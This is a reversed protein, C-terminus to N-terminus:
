AQSMKTCTMIPFFRRHDNWGNRGYCIWENPRDEPNFYMDQMHYIDSDRDKLLEKDKSNTLKPCLIYEAENVLEEPLNHLFQVVILTSIGPVEEIERYKTSLSTMVEASLGGKGAFVDGEEMYILPIKRMYGGEPNRITNIRANVIDYIAANVIAGQSMNEALNKSTVSGEMILLENEMLERGYDFYRDSLKRTNVLNDLSRFFRESKYGGREAIEKAANRFEQYEIPFDDMEMIESIIFFAPEDISIKMIEMMTATRIDKNEINKINRLCLTVENGDRKGWSTGLDSFEPAIYKAYPYNKPNIGFKYLIRRFEAIENAMALKHLDGKPDVAFVPHGFRGHLQDIGLVRAVVSKGSGNGGCIIITQRRKRSYPITVADMYDRDSSGLLIKDDPIGIFDDKQRRNIQLLNFFNFKKVPKFQSSSNRDAYYSKYDIESGIM